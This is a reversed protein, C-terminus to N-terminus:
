KSVAETKEEVKPELVSVPNGKYVAITMKEETQLNKLMEETLPVEGKAMAVDVEQLKIWSKNKHYFEPWFVFEGHKKDVLRNSLAETYGLVSGTPLITHSEGDTLIAADRYLDPKTVAYEPKDEVPQFKVRAAAAAAAAKKQVLEAPTIRDVMAPPKKEAGDKSDAAGSPAAGDQASLGAAM